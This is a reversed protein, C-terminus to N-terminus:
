CHQLMALKNISKVVDEICYHETVDEVKETKNLHQAMSVQLPKHILVDLGTLLCCRDPKLAISSITIKIVLPM